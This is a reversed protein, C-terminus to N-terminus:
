RSKEMLEYPSFVMDKGLFSNGYMLDSLTSGCYCLTDPYEHDLEYLSKSTISWNFWNQYLTQAILDKDVDLLEIKTFDCQQFFVFYSNFLQTIETFDYTDTIKKFADVTM